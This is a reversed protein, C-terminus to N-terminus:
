VKFQEVYAEALLNQYCVQNVFWGETSATVALEGQQSDYPKTIFYAIEGYVQRWPPARCGNTFIYAYGPAPELYGLPYRAEDQGCMRQLLAVENEVAEPNLRVERFNVVCIENLQVYHLLM